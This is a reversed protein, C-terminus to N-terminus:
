QRSIKRGPVEGRVAKDLEEEARKRATKYDELGSPDTGNTPNNRVYRSLSFDGASFGTSDENVWRGTTTDYWRAGNYNRQLDSQYGSGTYQWRNGFAGTTDLVSNGCGDYRVVSQAGTAAEQEAPALLLRGPVALLGAAGIDDPWRLVFQFHTALTTP